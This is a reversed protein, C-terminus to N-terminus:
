ELLKVFSIVILKVTEPARTDPAAESTVDIM